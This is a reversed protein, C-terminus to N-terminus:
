GRTTPSCPHILRNLYRIMSARPYPWSRPSSNALYLGPSTSNGRRDVCLNGWRPTMPIEVPETWSMGGDGSWNMMRLKRPNGAISWAQYMRGRSPGDTRDITFWQKDGGWAFVPDSWSVGGDDSSFLSTTFGSTLSLYHFRGDADCAIVPDSRFVGPELVGPFTWTAGADHSYAWGAQRFDSDITDFQRWGIVIQNPQTPSVAITPENAADGLINAGSADVNVQVSTFRGFRVVSAGGRESVGLGPAWPDGPTELHVAALSEWWASDEDADAGVEPLQALCIPAVAFLLAVASLRGFHWNFM